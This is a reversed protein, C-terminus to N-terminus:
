QRKCINNDQQVRKDKYWQKGTEKEYLDSYWNPVSTGIRYGYNVLVEEHKSIINLAYVARIKGFRPHFAQGFISNAKSFSHNIKHGLTARYNSINWYQKPIHIKLPGDFSMLNRFIDWYEEWTQNCFKGRSFLAQESNNWFLGSYYSVLEGKEIDRKAFVGDQSVGNDIYIINKTYLDMVRPHDGIRIRDPRSFKMLPNDLKLKAVKIEKIGNKCRESIIKSSKAAVMKAGDFNGVLVTKM